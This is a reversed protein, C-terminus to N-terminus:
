HSLPLNNEHDSMHCRKTDVHRHKLSEMYYQEETFTCLQTWVEYLSEGVLVTMQKTLLIYDLM